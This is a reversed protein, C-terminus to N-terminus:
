AQPRDHGDPGPEPLAAARAELANLLSACLGLYGSLLGRGLPSAVAHGMMFQRV